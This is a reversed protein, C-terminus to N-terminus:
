SKECMRTLHLEKQLPYKWSKLNIKPTFLNLSPFLISENEKSQFGYLLLFHWNIKEELEDIENTPSLLPSLSKM